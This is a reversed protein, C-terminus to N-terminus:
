NQWTRSIPVALRRISQIAHTYLSLLLVFHFAEFRIYRYRYIETFVASHKGTRDMPFVAAGVLYITNHIYALRRGVHTTVAIAIGDHDVAVLAEEEELGYIGLPVIAEPSPKDLPLRAIGLWGYPPSDNRHMIFSSYVHKATIAAFPKITDENICVRRVQMTIPALCCIVARLYGFVFYYQTDEM